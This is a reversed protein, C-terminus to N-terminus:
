NSIIWKKFFYITMLIHIKLSSETKLRNCFLDGEWLMLLVAYNIKGYYNPNMWLCEASIYRKLHNKLTKLLIQNMECGITMLYSMIRRLLHVFWTNNDYYSCRYEYIKLIKTTQSTQPGQHFANSVNQNLKNSFQSSFLYCHFMLYFIWFCWISYRNFNNIFVVKLLFVTNWNALTGLIRNM